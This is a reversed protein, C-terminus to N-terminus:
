ELTQASVTFGHARLRDPLVTGLASMPTSVGGPGGEAGALALGSEALMIATGGYAPDYPAAVTARVAPGSVPYADVDLHFRGEAMTQESPGEGPAPLFRDVLARTPAFFMAAALAGIGVGLGAARARGKLGRGTDVVERYRMHQGYGWGTLHNTRNVIQRNYPSMVFPAQWTRTAPDRRIGGRWESDPLLSPPRTCLAYPDSILQRLHPQTRAEIIQQRMSDVTGGSIGGRLTRVQGTAEILPIGGAERHALGMALDSPVSDFGCSHVIRAGSDRAVADHHRVSEAVFATEGSLDAYHTGAAACAAVVTMGYRLYPGVTTVVVTTRGAMRAVSEEDATDVVLVPWDVQLSTRVEDLRRQSRGALAIRMGAPAHRALHAATLRGVFGTAGLLVLDLDRSAETM